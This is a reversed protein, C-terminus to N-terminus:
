EVLGLVEKKLLPLYRTIANWVIRDDIHDYGHALVNRFGIIDAHHSISDLISDDMNRIRILVEGIILFDMEVARQTKLDKLYSEFNLDEVFIEVEEAAALLDLFCKHM